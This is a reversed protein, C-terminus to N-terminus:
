CFIKKLSKPLFKRLYTWPKNTKTLAKQQAWRCLLKHNDNDDDYYDNDGDANGNGYDTSAYTSLTYVGAESLKM